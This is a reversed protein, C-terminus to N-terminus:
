PSATGTSASGIQKQWDSRHIVMEEEAVWAGRKMFGQPIHRLWTLGAKEMVRQSATNWTAYCALIKQAELHGFGFGLIGTVAETMYGQGQHDPHTWFGLDWVGDEDCARISIRGIFTGDHTDISFVYASGAAWAECNGRYPAEMEDVSEPPEWLMGDNFGAVRSASFIHEFDDRSVHRLRCRETEIQYTRPLM